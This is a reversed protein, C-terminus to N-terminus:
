DKKWLEHHINEILVSKGNQYFLSIFSAFELESKLAYFLVVAYFLLLRIM